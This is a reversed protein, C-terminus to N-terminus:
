EAHSFTKAIIERAIPPTVSLLYQETQKKFNGQNHGTKNLAEQMGRAHRTKNMIHPALSWVQPKMCATVGSVQMGLEKNM